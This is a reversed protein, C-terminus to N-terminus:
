WRRHSRFQVPGHVHALFFLKGIQIQPSIQYNSQFKLSFDLYIGPMLYDQELVVDREAITYERLGPLKKENRLHISQQKRSLM